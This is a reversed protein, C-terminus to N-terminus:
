SGGSIMWGGRCFVLPLSAPVLTAATVLSCNTSTTLPKRIDHQGNPLISPDIYHTLLAFPRASRRSSRDARQCLITWKDPPARPMTRAYQPVAHLPGGGSPSSKNAVKRHVCSWVPPLKYITMSFLPACFTCLYQVSLYFYEDLFLGAM